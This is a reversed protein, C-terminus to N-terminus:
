MPVNEHKEAGVEEVVAGVEGVRFVRLMRFVHWTTRKKHLHIGRVDFCAWWARKSMRPM